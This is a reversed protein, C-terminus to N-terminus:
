TMQFSERSALLVIVMMSIGDWGLIQGHLAIQADQVVVTGQASAMVVFLLLRVSQNMVDYAVVMNKASTMALVLLLRVSQNPVDNGAVM